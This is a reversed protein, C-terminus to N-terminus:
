INNSENKCRIKEQFQEKNYIPTTTPRGLDKRSRANVNIVIAFKSNKKQYEIASILDKKNDVIYVKKFGFGLLIKEIDLNYSITPEGGVSEHCGNNILIYKFNDKANQIAVALGGMHMIFSGDGDICFINKDTNLSIGFALSSTHGMSGVTLFDNSHNSNTKERIEFIERSTKGTTSVIFDNQELNDIITSLAEERSLLNKNNSDFEKNYKSFSDKKVVLAISKNTQKIYDHCFKVQKQYDQSLILYKVGLTDLLPLTLEGQKIHQPEDKVNPEGRYGIIFLMPIKYVKEDTLSLLPNIINGLGSNQMYVVGYKSTTINYGSAIAVANGENATIIHNKNSLDNICLCFENLLSDPVGTFFDFNNSVLTNYFNKTNIMTIM